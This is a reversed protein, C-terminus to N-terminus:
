NSFYTNNGDNDKFFHYHDYSLRAPKVEDMFRMVYEKYSGCAMGGTSVYDPFLNIYGLRDPDKERLYKVVKGLNPFARTNPEDVINYGDVEPQDRYIEM